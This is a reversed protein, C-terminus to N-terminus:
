PMAAGYQFIAAPSIYLTGEALPSLDYRRIYRGRSAIFRLMKFERKRRPRLMSTASLAIAYEYSRESHM